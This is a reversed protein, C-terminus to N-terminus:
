GKAKLWNRYAIIEDLQAHVINRAFSVIEARESSIAASVAMEVAGAHHGIMMSVFNVDPDANMKMDMMARMSKDMKEAAAADNGGMSALWERMQKIEAEQDAIVAEAWKKVQADRGNKLVANAMDVAAEHHPIMASLFEKDSFAKNQRMHENMASQMMCGQMMGGQMMGGQMMAGHAMGGQMTAGHAMGGMAGTEGEQKMGPMVDQAAPMNKAKAQVGSQVPDHLGGHSLGNQGAWVVTASAAVAMIGLYIIIKKLNKM